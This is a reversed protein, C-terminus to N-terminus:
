NDLNETTCNLILKGNIRKAEWKYISPTKPNKLLSLTHKKERKVERSTWQVSVWKQIHLVENVNDM